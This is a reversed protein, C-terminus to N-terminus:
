FNFRATILKYKSSQFKSVLETETFNCSTILLTGNDKLIENVHNVYLDAATTNSQDQALSIADFTGKDLAVDYNAKITEIQEQATIDLPFFNIPNPSQASCIKKSLEISPLSYDVGTLQM